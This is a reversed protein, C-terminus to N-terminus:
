RIPDLTARRAFPRNSSFAPGAAGPLLLNIKLKPHSPAVAVSLSRPRALAPLRVIIGFVSSAIGGLSFVIVVLDWLPRHEWLWPFDWSHLGNYLWRYVRNFHTSRELVQGTAPDIYFWTRDPDAFQIRIVPLPRESREPHRTYYYSDYEDLRSLQTVATHPMLAPARELLTRPDPNYVTRPEAGFGAAALQSTGDRYSIRYFPQGAYHLLEADVAQDAAALAPMAFDTPTLEKGTFVRAQAALPTRSPNLGGPNMSLLGSFVWTLSLLGFLAGTIYHWRMVGRYPIRPKGPRRKWRWRLVGIWLGTIALLTGAGSTIYIVWDWADVHRRLLTPYIWHTVAAFYNGIREWRRTDRVVEATTSSVYLETGERDNLAFRLLPRHANLAASVTWQDTQLTDRYTVEFPNDVWRARRAFGAAVHLATDGDVERLVEGTDAFVTRTQANGKVRIYYVPRRLLMGLRIDTFKLPAGPAVSSPFTEAPNSATRFDLPTLRATAAGPTLRATSFDLSEVGAHREAPLLQPFEVYMMFIGSVFWLAFLLCLVIGTWRHFLFLTRKWTM